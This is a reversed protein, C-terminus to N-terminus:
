HLPNTRIRSSLLVSGDCDAWDRDITFFLLLDEARYTSLEQSLKESPFSMTDWFKKNIKVLLYTYLPGEHHQHLLTLMWHLILTPSDCSSCLCASSLSNSLRVWHVCLALPVLLFLLIFLKLISRILANSSGFVSYTFFCSSLVDIPFTFRVYDYFLKGYVTPWPIVTERYILYKWISM